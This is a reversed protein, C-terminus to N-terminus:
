IKYERKGVLRKINPIHKILIFAMAVLSFVFVLKKDPSIFFVLIPLSISSVISGISVIRTISFVLLFIAITILTEIPAIALFVGGSIAVGKGGKFRLFISFGQGLIASLGSLIAIKEGLGLKFSVFPFAFGKLIDFILVPIGWKKGLVRCVNTFGINGSGEKRIDKGKIRGFIYGLPISGFVYALIIVVIEM